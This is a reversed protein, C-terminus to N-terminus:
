GPMRGYRSLWIDVLRSAESKTMTEVPQPLALGFHAAYIKLYKKQRETAPSQKKAKFQLPKPIFAEEETEFFQQQLRTFLEATELTDELARHANERPIGFYTCLSELTKKQEKPLFKRALKLTDVAMREFSFKHNVAWQKLFSYDFIVNHGVLVDEGLFAFYETLVEEETRAQALMEKTIGTLETIQESFSRKTQILEHFSETKQGNRVRVAAVELIRDTKPNLGTMELDIVTYDELM